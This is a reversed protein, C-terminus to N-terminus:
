EDQSTPGMRGRLEGVTAMAQLASDIVQAARAKAGKEAVRAEILEANALIIGLQNNLRHFLERVSDIDRDSEAGTRAALMEDDGSM